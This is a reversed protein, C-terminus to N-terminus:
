SVRFNRHSETVFAGTVLAKAAEEEEDMVDSPWLSGDSVM